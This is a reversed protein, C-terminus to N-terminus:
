SQLHLSEKVVCLHTFYMTIIQYEATLLLVGSQEHVKFKEEHAM